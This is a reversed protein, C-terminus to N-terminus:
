LQTNQEKEIEMREIQKYAHYEKSAQAFELKLKDPLPKRGVRTCNKHDALVKFM